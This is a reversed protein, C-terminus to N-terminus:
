YRQPLEQLNRGRAQALISQYSQSDTCVGNAVGFGRARLDGALTRAMQLAREFTMPSFHEYLEPMLRVGYKISDGNLKRQPEAITSDVVWV